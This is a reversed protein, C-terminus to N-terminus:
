VLPYDWEGGAGCKATMGTIRRAARHHFTMLVKLMDRTVVWIESGYLLVSQAVAKYMVGRYRVMEGMRELVRTIM